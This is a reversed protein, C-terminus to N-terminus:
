YSTIQSLENVIIQPTGKYLTIVGIVCINKPTPLEGPLYIFPLKIKKWSVVSFRGPQPYPFGIDIFLTNGQPNINVVPGCVIKYEGIHSKSSEWSVLFSSTKSFLKTYDNKYVSLENELTSKVIDKESICNNLEDEKEHLLNNIFNYSNEWTQFTKAITLDYFIFYTVTLSLLTVLIFSSIKWAKM